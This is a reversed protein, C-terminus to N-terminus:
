SSSLVGDIAACFGDIEADPLCQTRVVEQSRGRMRALTEPRLVDILARALGGKDGAHVVLGNEGDVIVTGAAGCADTAILACGAIAAEVFVKGFTDRHSPLAVVDSAEYLWVLDDRSLEGLFKVRDRVGLEAAMSLYDEVTGGVGNRREERGAFVFQADIHRAVEPIATLLDRVGKFPHMNGVFAVVHTRGGSLVARPFNNIRLHRSAWRQAFDDYGGSYIARYLSCEPVRYLMQLTVKSVETQYICADSLRLLIRKATRIAWRRKREIAYPLTQNVSIVTKRFAKALIACLLASAGQLGFLVILDSDLACRLAARVNCNSVTGEPVDGGPLSLYRGRITSPLFPIGATGEHEYHFVPFCKLNIGRATLRRM